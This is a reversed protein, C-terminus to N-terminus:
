KSRELVKGEFLKDASRPNTIKVPESETTLSKQVYESFIAEAASPPMINHSGLSKSLAQYMNNDIFYFKLGERSEIYMGFKSCVGITGYNDPLSSGVVEEINRHNFSLDLLKSMAATGIGQRGQLIHLSVDVAKPSGDQRHSVPILGAGGILQNTNNEIIKFYGVGYEKSDISMETFSSYLQSDINIDSFFQDLALQTRSEQAKVRDIIEPNINIDKDGQLIFDIKASFRDCYKRLNAIGFMKEMWSSSFVVKENTIIRKFESYDSDSTMLQLHLDDPSTKVKQAARSFKRLLNSYNTVAPQTALTQILRRSM